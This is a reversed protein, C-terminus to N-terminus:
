HKYMAKINGWSSDKVPSTEDSGLKVWKIYWGPYTVSSDAGFFFGIMVTSGVYQSLDFCDRVFTGSAGTFVEEGGVCEAVYTGSDLVDDYGDHPYLLSWTQGSDTSIKVNGGDYGSEIDYYHCLEMCLCNETVNYPGIIAAEGSAVPYDGTLNTALINTVAVGDCAVTPIGTPIGWQWPIPGIGCPISQWQCGMENFDIVYCLYESPCCPEPPAEPCDGIAIADISAQAGDYGVYGFGVTITQDVDYGTLPISYQQWQWTVAGNNDDYYNWVENGDITVVVNYNQYPDVAWYTSANVYFTLCEDGAELTYDFKLWEDQPGTYGDDYMCTAYCAGEYPTGYVGACDAFWTENVNTQVLSWGAPPVGAEFGEFVTRYWGHDIPFMVEGARKEAPNAPGAVAVSAAFLLCLAVIISRRM